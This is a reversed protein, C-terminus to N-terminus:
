PAITFSYTGNTKHGDTSLVHWEVTYKGTALKDTIPIMLTTDSKMLMAEGTKVAEKNPGTVTVGSFKL